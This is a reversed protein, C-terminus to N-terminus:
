NEHPKSIEAFSSFAELQFHLTKKTIKMTTNKPKMNDRKEDNDKKNSEDKKESNDKKNSKNKKERNDKKNGEDKKEGNPNLAQKDLIQYILDLKKFEKFNSVELKIAIDQLDQLKKKKLELIDYM